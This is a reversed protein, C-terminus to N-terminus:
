TFSLFDHLLSKLMRRGLSVDYIFLRFLSVLDPSGLLRMSSINHRAISLHRPPKGNTMQKLKNLNESSQDETTSVNDKNYGGELITFPPSLDMGAAM